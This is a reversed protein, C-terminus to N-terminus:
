SDPFLSQAIGRVNLNEALIDQCVVYSIAVTDALEHMTRPDEHILERIKEVNETM